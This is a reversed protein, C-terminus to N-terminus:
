QIELKGYVSCMMKTIVTTRLSNNSLYIKFSPVTEFNVNLKKTKDWLNLWIGAIGVVAALITGVASIADWNM